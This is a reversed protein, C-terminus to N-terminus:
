IIIDHIFAQEIGPSASMVDFYGCLCECASVCVSVYVCLCVCMCVGMGLGGACILKNNLIGVAFDGRKTPM